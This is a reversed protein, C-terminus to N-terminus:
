GGVCEDCKNYEHTRAVGICVCVCCMLISVCGYIDLMRYCVRYIVIRMSAFPSQAIKFCDPFCFLMNVNTDIAWTWRVGVPIWSGRRRYIFLQKSSCFAGRLRKAFITSRPFFNASEQLFFFQQRISISQNVQINYKRRKYARHLM